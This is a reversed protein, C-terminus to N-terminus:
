AGTAKKRSVEGIGGGQEDEVTRGPAGVKLEFDIEM